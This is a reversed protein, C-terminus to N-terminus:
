HAVRIHTNEGDDTKVKSAAMKWETENLLDLDPPAEKSMDDFYVLGRDCELKETKINKVTAALGAIVAPTAQKARQAKKKQRNLASRVIIDARLKRLEPRLTSIDEEQFRPKTKKGSPAGLAPGTSPKVTVTTSTNQWETRVAGGAPSSQYNRYSSNSYWNGYSEHGFGGNVKVSMGSAHLFVLKDNTGIVGKLLFRGEETMFSAPGVARIISALHATDSQKKDGLNWICGNHAMVWGDAVPFPHCNEIKIKGQTRIRAHFLVPLGNMTRQAEEWAAWFTAPSLGRKTYLTPGQAIAFGWGDSNVFLSRRLHEEDIAGSPSHIIICM